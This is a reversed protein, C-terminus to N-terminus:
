KALLLDPTRNRKGGNILLNKYRYSGLYTILSNLVRSLETPLASSQLPKLYCLDRSTM